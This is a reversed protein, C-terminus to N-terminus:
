RGSTEVSEASLFQRLTAVLLRQDLPKSVVAQIQAHDIDNKTLSQGYGSMLIVPLEPNYKKFFACLEIGNCSPMELDTLLLDYQIESNQLHEMAAIGSTVSCISLTHGKLYLRIVKLVDPEDDVVLIRGQLPGTQIASSPELPPMFGRKTERISSEQLKGVLEEGRDCAAVIRLLRRQVTGGFDNEEEIMEVNARIVSFINKMGHAHERSLRSVQKSSSDIVTKSTHFPHM